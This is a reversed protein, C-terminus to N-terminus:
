PAGKGAPDARRAALAQYLQQIRQTVPGPVGEGLPKGDIATIATAGLTAATMFAERAQLAESVTFPREAIRLSAEAAAELIVRRTVGPLISESLNRTVIEGEEGVIWASTSSGETIFGNADILWAEFAGARRAATKALINPLLATSKIDCRSWREDRHTIVTVGEARRADLKAPDVPRATM